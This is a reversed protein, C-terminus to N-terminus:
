KIIPELDSCYCIPCIVSGESLIFKENCHPCHFEAGEASELEEPIEDNGFDLKDNM